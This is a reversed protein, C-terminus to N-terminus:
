YNIVIDQPPKTRYTADIYDMLDLLITEMLPGKSSDLEWRSDAYFGGQLCEREWEASQEDYRCRGDPFVMILKQMRDEIPIQDSVMNNYFIIASLILDQPEQGYGHLFYIVPYYLDYNKPEYYGPPLFVSVQNSRGQDVFEFTILYEEGIQVVADSRDGGPWRSSMAMTVTMLRNLIQSATGVHGGDGRKKLAEDADPNGYILVYNKGLMHKYDVRTSDYDEEKDAGSLPAFNRWLSVEMGRNFLAGAIDSIGPAFDFLDRIGADAFVDIRMLEEETMGYILHIADHEFFNLVNPNYDFKGNGEGWDYGGESQQPTGEVGDLGYDLFPEGEDYLYNGETGGPNFQYDYDDGSPDPNTVPDYGTEDASKVGDVGVDEFPEHPQVIVPEGPDRKRNGNVDVALLIDLPVNQPADPNWKGVDSSDEGGDCFTIVPFSGDPNYRRDYFHELTVVGELSCKEEPSKKLWEESIGPPLYTSSLNYFGANGFARTLDRFIRCYDSRNFTGGQGDWGDPYFWHEYEQSFEFLRSPSPPPCHQGIKETGDQATCFGGLHYRYMYDLMATWNAPGGLPAVFDFREHNRFGVLSAGSGGMSVGTIGRFTFHRTMSRTGTLPNIAAQYTGFRPSMFSFIAINDNITISPNAIIVRRPSVGPGTYFVSIQSTGYNAPIMAPNVPIGFTMERMFRAYPPSFTVAPGVPVYDGSVIDSACGISVNVPQIQEDPPFEVFAGELGEGSDEVRLSEGAGVTGTVEGNCRFGPPLVLVHLDASFVKGEPGTYVARIVTDVNELGHVSVEAYNEGPPYLLTEPEVSVKGQADEPISLSFTIPFPPAGVKNSWIRLKANREEGSQMSIWSPVWEVQQFWAQLGMCSALGAGLDIYAKSDEVSKVNRCEKVCEEYLVYDDPKVTSCYKSMAELDSAGECGIKGPFTEPLIYLCGEFDNPKLLFICEELDIWANACQKVPDVEEKKCGELSSIVFWLLLGRVLFFSLKFKFSKKNQM